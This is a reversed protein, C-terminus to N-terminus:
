GFWDLCVATADDQLKGDCYDMVRSTIQRVLETPAHARSDTLVSAVRSSGFHDSSDGARGDLIGDSLLLLRDDPQIDVRHLTYDYGPEVGLPPDPPLALPVVEGKRLILAAPHGANIASAEGTATNLHVMLSTVFADEGFQEVLRDSAAEAQQRIGGNCRRVNRQTSVTLSAMLAARLGHGMADNVTTTVIGRDVAYDFSDGGIEYAPELNGAISLTRDQYALVPLLEWQIEAPLQLDRRRRVREFRDTYRRAEAIVYGLLQAMLRLESWCDTQERDLRVALVGLRERRVSVPVFVLTGSGDDVSVPRQTRFAKGATPGDVQHVEAALPGWQGPVPELTTEAYDALLLVGASAGTTDRLRHFLVDM